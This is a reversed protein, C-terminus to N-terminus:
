PKISNDRNTQGKYIVGNGKKANHRQKRMIGARGDGWRRRLWFIAEAITVAKAM